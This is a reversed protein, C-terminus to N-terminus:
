AKKVPVETLRQGNLLLYGRGTPIKQSTPEIRYKRHREVFRKVWDAADRYFVLTEASQVILRNIERIETGKPRRVRYDFDSFSLDNRRDKSLDPMIRVAVDPALPVLKNLIRADSTREIAVPYDSTFFASGPEQNILVEWAFNGFSGVLDIVNSIGIAQPYKNDIPISVTGEALLESLSKGGLSAPAKPLDGTKDLLNAEAEVVNRLPAAGIRMAAPSCTAIYAIFGAIVHVAGKDVRGARLKELSANYKPEITELFEEIARPEKLYDNTSGDKTRCVDESRCPFAHMDSKRIGYMREGLLPSYFNRLHVQPVYHDLPM